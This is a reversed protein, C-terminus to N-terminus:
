PRRLSLVNEAVTANKLCCTYQLRYSLRREGFGQMLFVFFFLIRRFGIKLIACPIRKGQSAHSQPSMDNFEGLREGYQFEVETEIEVM